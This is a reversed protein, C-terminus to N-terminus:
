RATFSASTASPLVGSAAINANKLLEVAVFHDNASAEPDDLIAALQALHGPRLLHAIDRMATRALLTIGEPDVELFSRGGLDVPAVFDTSLLRYPTDDPGLPLIEQFAFDSM